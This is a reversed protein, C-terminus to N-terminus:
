RKSGKTINKGNWSWRIEEAKTECVLQADQGIVVRTTQGALVASNLINLFVLFIGFGAAFGAM